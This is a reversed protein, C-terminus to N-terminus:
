IINLVGHFTVKFTVYGSKVEYETFYATFTKYGTWPKKSLEKLVRDVESNMTQWDTIEGYTIGASYTGEVIITTFFQSDVTTASVGRLTILSQIDRQIQQKSMSQHKILYDDSVMPTILTSINQILDKTTQTYLDNIDNDNSLINIYDDYGSVDNAKIYSNINRFMGLNNSYMYLFLACSTNYFN